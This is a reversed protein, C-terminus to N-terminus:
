FLIKKIKNTIRLIIPTRFSNKIKKIIKINVSIKSFKNVTFNKSYNSFVKDGKKCHIGSGDLGINYILSKKPCVCYKDLIFCNFNFLIDLTDIKNEIVEELMPYMDKGSLNFKSKFYKQNMKKKIWNKNWNMKNWVNRWTGWGWSAHRQSLYTSNNSYKDPNTYSYGTVSGVLRDNDYFSLADSMYSLFFKNTIIDDELIIVSKKYKLVTTIGDLLSNALGLNKKRLYIKKSKFHSLKKAVRHVKNVELDNKKKPGDCFLFIDFKKSNLNKKLYFLTKEFHYPRNYGFIAIGPLNNTKM